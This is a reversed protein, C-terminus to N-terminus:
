LKYELSMQTYNIGDGDINVRVRLDHNGIEIKYFDFCLEIGPTVAHRFRVKTMKSLSLECGSADQLLETAMQILCVGPTVPNDPFHVKYIPHDSNMRVRVRLTGDAQEKDVVSFFQDTLIM